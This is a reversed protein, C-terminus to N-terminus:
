RYIISFNELRNQKKFFQKPIDLAQYFYTSM